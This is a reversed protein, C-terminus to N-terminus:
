VDYEIIFADIYYDIAGGTSGDATIAQMNQGTDLYIGYAVDLSYQKFLTNDVFSVHAIRAYVGASLISIQAEVFANPAAATSRIMYIHIAQLIARKNAPVSYLWRQTQVHPAVATTEYRKTIFTPTRDYFANRAVSPYIIRM